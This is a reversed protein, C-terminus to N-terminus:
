FSFSCYFSFCSCALLVGWVQSFFFFDIGSYFQLNRGWGSEWVVIKNSDMFVTGILFVPMSEQGIDEPDKKRPRWHQLKSHAVLFWKQRGLSLLRAVIRHTHTHTHAEINRRSKRTWMYCGREVVHTTAITFTLAPLRIWQLASVPCFNLTKVIKTSRVLFEIKAVKYYIYMYNNRQWRLTIVQGAKGEKGLGVESGM